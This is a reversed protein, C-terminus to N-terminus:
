YNANTLFLDQSIFFCCVYERSIRRSPLRQRRRAQRVSATVAGRGGDSVAQVRAENLRLAPRFLRQLPRRPHVCDRSVTPLSKLLDTLHHGVIQKNTQIKKRNGPNVHCPSFVWRILFRGLLFMRWTVSTQTVGGISLNSSWHSLVSNTPPVLLPRTRENTSLNVVFYSPSFM